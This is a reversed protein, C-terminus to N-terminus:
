PGVVIRVTGTTGLFSAIVDVTGAKLGRVWVGARVGPTTTPHFVVTAMTTDSTTWREPQAYYLREASDFLDASVRLSDGVKMTTTQAAARGIVLSHFSELVIRAIRSSDAIEIPLSATRGSSHTATVSSTGVALGRVLVGRGDDGVLMPLDMESGPVIEVASTTSWTVSKAFGSDSLAYVRLTDGKILGPVMARVQLAFCSHPDLFGGCEPAEIDLHELAGCGTTAAMAAAMALVFVSTRAM